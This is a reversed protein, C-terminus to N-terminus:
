NAQARSQLDRVLARGPAVTELFRADDVVPTGAVLLYRVGVSAETPARFSARDQIREPDFVVIDAQAGPQLRGLRRAIAATTELRRAPMLSMKRIADNLSMTRRDRVYHGLVRAHTGAGRPHDRLGDSAVVVASDAMVTDVVEDPNTHILVLRPEPSAHLAEFRERTLREGSEPLELDGYDLGRKERWGPNFLASNIFTMGATYPYAETTVDLGRARAGAIMSLCQPSDHMCTSNIHVIHLATGGVAAAGILELIAEISSGPELRGGSRAHVFVPAQAAAALRFVEVVEHRTAGPAYELGMGIGLAGAELQNRLTVLLRDLREASAPENTAPGSQPIIGAEPGFVSGPLPADWALARAALYSASAGFHIPSRRRTDIFRRVDPVGVELELATTVGDLAMLRYADENQGHQHLDIFGPAVVLGSADITRAGTLPEASIQVITDGRIGVDRIADLNTEPDIVRGSKLVVDFSEPARTCSLCWCSAILMLAIARM